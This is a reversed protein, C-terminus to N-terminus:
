NYLTLRVQFIHVDKDLDIKSIWTQIYIIKEHELTVEAIAEEASEEGNESTRCIKLSNSALNNAAHEQSDINSGYLNKDNIEQWYQPNITKSFELELPPEAFSNNEFINRNDEFDYRFHGNEFSLSIDKLNSFNEAGPLKDYNKYNNRQNLHSENEQLLEENHKESNQLVTNEPLIKECENKLFFSSNAVEEQIYILMYANESSGHTGYALQIQEWELKLM